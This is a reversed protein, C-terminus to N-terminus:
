RSHDSIWEFNECLRHYLSANNLKL